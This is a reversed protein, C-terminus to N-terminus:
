ALAFSVTSPLCSSTSRTSIFVFVVRSRSAVLRGPTDSLRPVQLQNAGGSLWVYVPLGAEDDAPRWVNLSLCDESCHKAGPM